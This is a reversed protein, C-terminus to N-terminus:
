ETVAVHYFTKDNKLKHNNWDDEIAKKMNLADSLEVRRKSCRKALLEDSIDLYVVVECDVIVTGFVPQGPKVKINRRVIRDVTEGIEETWPTRSIIEAEEETINVFATADMDISEPFQKLLTTKGICTTGLVFIRENKHKDFIVKLKNEITL